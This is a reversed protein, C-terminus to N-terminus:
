PLLTMKREFTGTQRGNADFASMKLLYIGAAAAHGGQARANWVLEGAGIRGRCDMTQRWVVVGRLDCITFKLVGVGSLPLMYRIRVFSRFPNPSTGILRLMSANLAPAKALFGDSGVFLWRYATGGPPIDVGAQQEEYRGADENYVKAKLSGPMAGANECHYLIRQAAQSGNVFALKYACGGNAMVGTLADGWTKKREVDYVGIYSQEFTPSLPFYRVPGGMSPDYVCYVDSLRSGGDLNSVVRIAWGKKAGQVKQAKKSLTQTQGIQAYQSMTVPIAPIRLLIDETPMPNFISYGSFDLCGLSVSDNALSDVHLAKVYLPSTRFRGSDSVWSYIGLTDANAAGVATSDLIDGVKVNFKFPLAIDTWSNAPLRISYTSDLPLTVGSGFNVPTANLTKIWVLGGPLFKFVDATNDSYEVWKQESAANQANPYWKFLRIKKADYAWPKASDGTSRLAYRAQPSDLSATVRLPEWIKQDTRVVDSSSRMVQRSVDRVTTHVGDSAIFVARVGNDATVYANPISVTVQKSRTYGLRNATVSGSSYSSGGMACMFQWKVNAVNDSVTFTDYLSTFEPVAMAHPEVSVSVAVTDLMVMFPDDLNKTKVSIYGAQADVVFTSEVTWVSDHFRYMRLDNASFNGAPPTFRLGVYFPASSQPQDFKFAISAPIFGSLLSPDPVWYDLKDTTHTVSNSDTVSDTVIRVNGNFAYATDGGIRTFYTVSQFNYNPTTLTDQSSDTPPTWAGGIKSEWLSVYYPTNFLLNNITVATMTTASSNVPVVKQVLGSQTSDPYAAASYSVGIQLSDKATANVHWFVKVQDAAPDFSLSDLKIRNATLKPAGQPTVADASANPTVVSWLGNKYVQAGFYYHTTPLLGTVLIASDTVAPSSVFYQTTDFYYSNVPVATDARYVVRLADVGSVPPWSLLITSATQAAATLKLPNAPRSVGVTFSVKKVPSYKGNVGKLVVACWVTKVAGSNFQQNVEVISDKGAAAIVAALSQVNFWTTATADTFDPVSDGAAGSGCWVAFTDVTAAPITKMNDVVVAASDSGIYKGRLVCANVPTTTDKVLVLCGNGASLASWTGDSWHVATIFGYVTDALPTPLTITDLFPAGKGQAEMTATVYKKANTAGTASLPIATPKYWVAISDSFPPLPGVPLTAYNTYAIEVKGQSILRGSILIPNDKYTRIVVTMSDARKASGDFVVLKANFSGETAYTHAPSVSSDIATNDGFYWYRKSITGTSSDTFTVALPIKGTVASPTFYAKVATSVVTISIQATTSGAANKATVTYSFTATAATPLGSIIGTAKAISLGAPLGSVTFSDVAGTVVPTDPTVAVGTVFTVPNQNYSLKSPAFLVGTVTQGARQNQYCLKIWDPSRYSREIRVEDLLGNYYEMNGSSGLYFSSNTALLAGTNASDGAVLVGDMFVRCGSGTKYKSTIYHWQNDAYPGGTWPFSAAHPISDWYTAFANQGALSKIQLATFNGDCRLVSVVTDEPQVTKFWGSVTISDKLGCISPKNGLSITNRQAPSFSRAKGILGTVSATGTSTIIDTGTDAHYTADNVNQTTDSMHWVGQFGRITDFVATSRSSDAVGATKNGWYIKFSQTLNNGYVTDLKVWIEATDNNNVGNVWREIQYPLHTGTGNTKAFRIDAGKALTSAFGSFNGPNLRVLVPFNTVTGAVNAGTATTNLTIIASSPWQSYDDNAAFSHAILLFTATLLM